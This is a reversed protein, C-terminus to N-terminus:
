ENEVAAPVIRPEGRKGTVIWVGGGVIGLLLAGAGFLLSIILGDSQSLGAYTFAAVMASERVGWGAISIPVVLILMVPLVLLLVDLLTLNAGAARAACWAAVVTMLHVVLSQMGIPLLADPSRLIQWAVTATAALHRTPSWRQLIGFGEWALGVFVAAAGLSGLGLVLLASRGVPDTVLQLSWPLCVVVLAALMVLGALRDLFVSYTAVRWNTDKGVLWIRMADGGVSSPLTQNFFNAIMAFRIMRSAPLDAGCRNLIRRWRLGVLFTQALLVLVGLACWAPDIRSLRGAVTGLNVLNLAFYLLLGSVALKLLLLIAKRM